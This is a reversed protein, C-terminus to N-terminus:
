PGAAGWWSRQLATPHPVSPRSAPPPPSSSSLAKGVEAAGHRCAPGPKGRLQSFTTAFRAGLAKLENNALSIRHIGQTVSRVAKYIGAPFAM